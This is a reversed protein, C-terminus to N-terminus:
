QVTDVNTITALGLLISHVGVNNSQLHLSVGPQSEGHGKISPRPGHKQTQLQKDLIVLACEAAALGACTCGPSNKM